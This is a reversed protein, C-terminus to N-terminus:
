EGITSEPVFGGAFDPRADRLLEVSPSEGQRSEQPYASWESQGISMDIGSMRFFLPVAVLLLLLAMLIFSWGPVIQPKKQSLM